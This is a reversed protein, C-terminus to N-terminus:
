NKQMKENRQKSSATIQCELVQQQALLQRDQLISAITWPLESADPRSEVASSV